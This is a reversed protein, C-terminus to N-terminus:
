SRLTTPTSRTRGSSRRCLSARPCVRTCYGCRLCTQMAGAYGFRELGLSAILSFLQRKEEETILLPEDAL